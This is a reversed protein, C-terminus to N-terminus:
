GPRQYIMDLMVDFVEPTSPQFSLEIDVGTEPLVLKSLARWVYIATGESEITSFPHLGEAVVYQRAQGTITLRKVEPHSAACFMGIVEKAQLIDHMKLIFRLPYRGDYFIRFRDALILTSSRRIELLM